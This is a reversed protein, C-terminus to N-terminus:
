KGHMSRKWKITAKHLPHLHPNVAEKYKKSEEEEQLKEELIQERQISAELQKESHLARQKWCMVTDYEADIESRKNEVVVDSRRCPIDQWIGDYVDDLISVPRKDAGHREEEFRHEELIEM